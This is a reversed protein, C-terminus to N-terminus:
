SKSSTPSAKLIRIKRRLAGPDVGHLRSIHIISMCHKYYPLPWARSPYRINLCCDQREDASPFWRGGSDSKGVPREKGKKRDIYQKAAAEVKCDFKESM